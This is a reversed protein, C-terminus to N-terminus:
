FATTLDANSVRNNNLALSNPTIATNGKVPFALVQKKDKSFLKQFGPNDVLM